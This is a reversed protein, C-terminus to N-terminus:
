TNLNFILCTKGNKEEAKFISEKLHEYQKLLEELEFKTSELESNAM